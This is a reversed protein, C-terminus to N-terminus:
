NDYCGIDADNNEMLAIVTEYTQLDLYDDPDIFSIYYGTALELGKNRAKSVGSNKQHFVKINHYQSALADCLKGSNDTSGDDVLIIEVNKYKQNVLSEVCKTIYKGMNYVPVVASIKKCM